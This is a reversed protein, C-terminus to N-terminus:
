QHAHFFLVHEGQLEITYHCLFRMVRTMRKYKDYVCRSSILLRLFHFFFPLFLCSFILFSSTSPLLFLSALGLIAAADEANRGYVTLRTASHALLRARSWLHAKEIGTMERFARTRTDRLQKYERMARPPRFSRSRTRMSSM